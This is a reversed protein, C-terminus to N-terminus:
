VACCEGVRVPLLDHTKFNAFDDAIDFLGEDLAALRGVFRHGHDAQGHDHFVRPDAIAEDFVEFRLDAGVARVQTGHHDLAQDADDATGVLDFGVALGGHNAGVTFDLVSRRDDMGQAEAVVVAFRDLGLAVQAEGVLAAARAGRDLDRHHVLVVFAQARM